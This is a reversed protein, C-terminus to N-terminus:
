RQNGVNTEIDSAKLNTKSIGKWGTLTKSVQKEEWSDLARM